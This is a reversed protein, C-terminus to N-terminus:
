KQGKSVPKFSTHNNFNQRKERQCRDENVGRLLLFIDSFKKKDEAADTLVVTFVIHSLIFSLSLPLFPYIGWLYKLLCTTAVPFPPETLRFYQKKKELFIKTSYTCIFYMHFKQTWCGAEPSSSLPEVKWLSNNSKVDAYMLTLFM